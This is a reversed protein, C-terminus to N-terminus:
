RSRGMGTVLTKEYYLNLPHERYPKFAPVQRYGSREYLCLAEPQYIGTKLRLVTIGHEMAYGELHQLMQRGLGKGRFPPRVYMRMIEASGPGMPKLAGCGAPQGDTRLVFFAVGERAMEAPSLGHERDHPYMPAIYRQLEDILGIAEPSDPPEPAISVHM